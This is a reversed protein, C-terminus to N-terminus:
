RLSLRCRVTPCHGVAPVDGDSQGDGVHVCMIRYTSVHYAYCVHHAIVSQYLMLFVGYRVCVM